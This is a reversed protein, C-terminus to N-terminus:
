MDGFIDNLEPDLENEKKEPKKRPKEQPPIMDQMLKDLRSPGPDKPEPNASATKPGEAKKSLEPQHEPGPESPTDQTLQKKLDELSLLAPGTAAQASESSRQAEPQPARPEPAKTAPEPEPGPSPRPTPELLDMSGPTPPPANAKSTTGRGEPAPVQQPRTQGGQRLNQQPYQRQEPYYTRPQQGSAPALASQARAPQQFAPPQQVTQSSAPQARAQPTAPPASRVEPITANPKIKKFAYFVWHNYPNSRSYSADYMWVLLDGHLEDAVIAKAALVLKDRDKDLALEFPDGVEGWGQQHLAHFYSPKNLREIYVEKISDRKRNFLGM